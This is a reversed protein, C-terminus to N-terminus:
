VVSCGTTSLIVVVVVFFVKTPNPSVRSPHGGAKSAQRTLRGRRGGLVAPHAAPM